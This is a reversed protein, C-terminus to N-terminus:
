DPISPAHPLDGADVPLAGDGNTSAGRRAPGKALRDIRLGIDTPATRLDPWSIAPHGDARLCRAIVAADTASEVRLELVRCRFSGVQLGGRDDIGEHALDIPGGDTAAVRIMGLWSPEDLSMGSSPHVITGTPGPSPLPPTSTPSAPDSDVADALDLAARIARLRHLGAEADRLEDPAWTNAEIERSLRAIAGDVLAIQQTEFARVEAEVDGDGRAPADLMVLALALAPAVATRLNIM